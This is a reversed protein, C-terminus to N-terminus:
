KVESADATPTGGESLLGELGNQTARPFAKQAGDTKLFHACLFFGKASTSINYWLGDGTDITKKL